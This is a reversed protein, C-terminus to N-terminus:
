SQSVQVEFTTGRIGVISTPTKVEFKSDDGLKEAKVLVSGVEIDLLTNEAKTTEDHHFTKFTFESEERVMLEGTKTNGNLELKVQSATATKIRDGESLVTDPELVLWDASGAKLFKAEGQIETVKAQSGSTASVSPSNVAIWCAILILSLVARRKM